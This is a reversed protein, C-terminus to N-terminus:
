HVLTLLPCKIAQAEGVQPKIKAEGPKPGVLLSPV